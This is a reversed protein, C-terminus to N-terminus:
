IDVNCQVLENTETLRNGYADYTRSRTSNDANTIETLLGREDYAHDTLTDAM